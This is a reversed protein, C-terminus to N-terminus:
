AMQYGEAVNDCDDCDWVVVVVLWLVVDIMDRMEMM